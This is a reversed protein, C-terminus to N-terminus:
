KSGCISCRFPPKFAQRLLLWLGISMLALVFDGGGIATVHREYKTVKGCNPCPRSDLETRQM